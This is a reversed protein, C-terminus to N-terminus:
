LSRVKMTAFLKIFVIPPSVKAGGRKQQRGQRVAGQRAQGHGAQGLRGQRAMGQRAM